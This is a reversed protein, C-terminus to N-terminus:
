EHVLPGVVLVTLKVGAEDITYETVPVLVFLQVAEVAVEMVTFALGETLMLGTAEVIHLPVATFRVAVPAFVYEQFLPEVFLM